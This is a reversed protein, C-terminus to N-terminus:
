IMKVGGQWPKSMASGSLKLFMGALFHIALERLTAKSSHNAGEWVPFSRSRKHEMPLTTTGLIPNKAM